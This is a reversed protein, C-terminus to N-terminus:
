QPTDPHLLVLLAKAITSQDIRSPEENVLAAAPINNRSSLTIRVLTGASIGEHYQEETTEQAKLISLRRPRLEPSEPGM